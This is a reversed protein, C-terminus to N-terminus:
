KKVLKVENSILGDVYADLDLGQAALAAEDLAEIRKVLDAYDIKTEAPEPVADIEKQWREPLQASGSGARPTTANSVM